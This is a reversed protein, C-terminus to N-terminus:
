RPRRAGHGAAPGDAAVWLDGGAANVFGPDRGYVGGIEPSPLAPRSADPRDARFWWNDRFRFSGADTGAGVNVAGIPFDDGHFYIVNRSLEGRRSRVFAADTTEQLIRLLWKRPRYVTNHRFVSGDATVFAVVAESGIFVNHEITCAAAEYPAPPQPRFFRRDTTGGIQVARLGAHEFRNERVVIDTSGGKIQLGTAGADDRHRFTSRRIVGRHGGIVTVASGGGWSEVRSDEVVFDQVGSFKIGATVGGDDRIDRVTIESLTIHHSPTGASEGDDINIGNWRAGEVIVRRLVVHAVDSMQVGTNGGRIVPWNAPDAAEITIPEAATGSLDHLFIGSEYIGPALAIATGPGAKSLAVSLEASTRVVGRRQGASDPAGSTVVLVVALSLLQRVV